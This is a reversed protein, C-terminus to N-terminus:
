SQWPLETQATAEVYQKKDTDYVVKKFEYGTLEMKEVNNGAKDKYRNVGLKGTIYVTDGKKISESIAEAKDGFLTIPFTDYNDDKAKKSLLVRTYTSGKETYKIDIFNVRGILEFTNSNM